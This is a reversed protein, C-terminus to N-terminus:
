VSDTHEEWRWGSGGHQSFQGGESTKRNVSESVEEAGEAELWDVGM